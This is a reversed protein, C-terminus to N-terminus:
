ASQVEEGANERNRRNELEISAHMKVINDVANFYYERQCEIARKALDKLHQELADIGKQGAMSKIMERMGASAEKEEAFKEMETRYTAKDSITINKTDKYGKEVAKDVALVILDALIEEATGDMKFGKLLERPFTSYYKSIEIKEDESVLGEYAPMSLMVDQYFDNDRAQGEAKMWVNVIGDLVAVTEEEDVVGTMSLDRLENEIIKKAKTDM